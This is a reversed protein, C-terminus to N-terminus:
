WFVRPPAGRSLRLGFVQVVAEGFIRASMKSRGVRRDVFVIPVEVVRLGAAIARYTTEIQFSYGNSRLTTPDIARLAEARYVKFGTTMDRVSLGLVTRAYISGGKSLMHRGLGWGVVGGGLVNRSGLVVDAGEFVAALLRPLERPEHSGDADMQAVLTFGRALAWSFGEAYATGLGLKGSRHLVHVRGDRAAIADAVAGTGDPSADDVVLVEADPVSDLVGAVFQEINEREDYTPTIVLLREPDVRQEPGAAEDVQRM